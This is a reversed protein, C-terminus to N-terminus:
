IRSRWCPSPNRTQSLPRHRRPKKKRSPSCRKSHPSGRLKDWQPDLRLTNKSVFARRRITETLYPAAKAADGLATYYQALLYASEPSPQERAASELPAIERAAEAARDLWALTVALRAQDDMAEPHDRLRQRLVAEAAQWQQRALTAKGDLQYAFALSWAKAGRVM